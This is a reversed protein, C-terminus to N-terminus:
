EYTVTVTVEGTYTGTAQTAGVELTGGVTFNSHSLGSNNPLSTTINSLTMQDGGETELIDGSTNVSYTVGTARSVSFTPVSFPSSSIEMDTNDFTRNEGAADIVVNGSTGDQAIKGFDLSGSSTISIPDVIEANVTATGSASSQAYCNLSLLALLLLTFNKM